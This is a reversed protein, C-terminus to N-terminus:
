DVMKKGLEQEVSGGIVIWFGGRKSGWKVKIWDM